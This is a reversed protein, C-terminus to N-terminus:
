LSYYWGTWLDSVCLDTWPDTVNLLSGKQPTNRIDGLLGEEAGHPEIYGQQQSFRKAQAFRPLSPRMARKM